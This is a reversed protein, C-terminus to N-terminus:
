IWARRYEVLVTHSQLSHCLESLTTIKGAEIEARFGKHQRITYQNKPALLFCQMNTCVVIKQPTIYFTIAKHKQEIVGVNM